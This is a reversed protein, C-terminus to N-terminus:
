EHCLKQCGNTDIALSFIFLHYLFYTFM